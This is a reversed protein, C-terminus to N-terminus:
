TLDALEIIDGEFTRIKRLLNVTLCSHIPLVILIDGIAVQEFFTKDTKVVGHEQSLGVVYATAVVPGWGHKEPLAVYGFIPKEEGNNFTKTLFEKSLHVAGGYILIEHRERHKAVVPCAVAVAIEDESCSGINLQTVDYFVFNGPRIEDVNSLDEIISCAPTNGISIEIQPFRESHLRQQVAKMRSVTEAYITRIKELSRAKYTHGSHTLLGCLALKEAQGITKALRVIEDFSDWLLGTRHYGTDIKIWVNVRHFLQEQLLGASQESEVLLHLTGMKALMNIKEIERINVPFAITIDQWGHQAFYAAMDVSSVTIANVGCKKFWEGIQASQHTKFHPRFRVHSKEAKRAMIEINRIAREKDLLLTPKVINMM